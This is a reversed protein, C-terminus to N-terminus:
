EVRTEQRRALILDDVLSVDQPVYRRVAKQALSVAQLLPIMLISNEELRMVIEDGAKIKLARRMKAPVVMRGSKGVQVKIEM